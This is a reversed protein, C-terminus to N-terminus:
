LFQQVLVQYIKIRMKVVQILDNRWILGLIQSNVILLVDTRIKQVSTVIKSISLLYTGTTIEKRVLARTVLRGDWSIQVQWYVSGLDGKIQYLYIVLDLKDLLGPFKFSKWSVSIHYM